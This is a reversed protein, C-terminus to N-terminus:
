FLNSTIDMIMDEFEYNVAPSQEATEPPYEYQILNSSDFQVAAQGAVSSTRACVDELSMEIGEVVGNEKKSDELHKMFFGLLDRDYIVFFRSNKKFRSSEANGLRISNVVSVVPNQSVGFAHRSVVTPLHLTRVKHFEGLVSVYTDIVKQKILLDIRNSRFPYNRLVFLRTNEMDIHALYQENESFLSYLQSPTVDKRYIDFTLDIYITKTIKGLKDGTQIVSFDKLLELNERLFAMETHGPLILTASM